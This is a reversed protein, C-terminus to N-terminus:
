YNEGENEHAIDLAAQSDVIYSYINQWLWWPIFLGDCDAKYTTGRYILDVALEGDADDLTPPIVYPVPKNKTTTACSNLWLTCIM